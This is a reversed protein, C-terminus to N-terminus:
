CLRVEPPSDPHNKLAASASGFIKVVPFAPFSIQRDVIFDKVDQWFVAVISVAYICLVNLELTQFPMPSFKANLLVLSPVVAVSLSQMLHNAMVLSSHTTMLVIGSSSFFLLLLGVHSM